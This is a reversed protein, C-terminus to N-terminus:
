ILSFTMLIIVPINKLIMNVRFQVFVFAMKNIRGYSVNTIFFIRKMASSTEPCQLFYKVIPWFHQTFIKWRNLFTRLTVIM